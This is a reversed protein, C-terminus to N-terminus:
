GYNSEYDKGQITSVASWEPYKKKWQQTWSLNNLLRSVRHELYYIPIVYSPKIYYVLYAM